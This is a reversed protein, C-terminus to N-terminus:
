GDNDAALEEDFRRQLQSVTALAAEKPFHEAGYHIEDPRGDHYKKTIKRRYVGGEGGPRNKTGSGPVAEYSVVFQYEM